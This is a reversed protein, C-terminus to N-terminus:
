WADTLMEEKFRDPNFTEPDDWYEPNRHVFFPAVIFTEGKNVEYEKFSEPKDIDRLLFPFPPFLRLSEEIVQFLYPVSKLDEFSEPPSHGFQQRLAERLKTQIEPHQTLTYLTWGLSKSATEFSAQLFGLSQDLILDYDPNQIDIGFNKLLMAFHSDPPIREPDQLLEEFIPRLVMKLTQKAQEMQVSEKQYKWNYLQDGVYPINALSSSIRTTILGFLTHFAHLFEVCKQDNEADLSFPNSEDPDHPDIKFLSEGIAALAARESEMMIDVPVGLEALGAIRKEWEEAVLRISPFYHAFHGAGIAQLAQKRYKLTEKGEDLGGPSFKRWIRLSEGRTFASSKKLIASALKPDSILYFVKPGIQLKCIGHDGYTHAYSRLFPLLRYKREALEPLSGLWGHGRACPPLPKSRYGRLWHYSAALLSFPTYVIGAVTSAADWYYWQVEKYEDVRSLPNVTTSPTM